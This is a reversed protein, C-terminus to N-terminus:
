VADCKRQVVRLEGQTASSGSPVEVKCVQGVVRGARERLETECRRLHESSRECPGQEGELFTM